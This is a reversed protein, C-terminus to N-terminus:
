KLSLFTTLGIGGLLVAYVILLNIDYFMVNGRKYFPLFQAFTKPYRCMFKFLDLYNMKSPALDLVIDEKSFTKKTHSKEHFLIASQLKPYEKLHVNMEIHDGYNNAIGFETYTIPITEM